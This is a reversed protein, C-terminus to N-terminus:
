FSTYVALYHGLSGAIVFLHWIAHNYPLKEWLYFIVGTTYFAGGGLLWYLSDLGMGATLPEIILLAMWGMILYYLVSLLPRTGFYFTKYIIGLLVMIWLVAIFLYGKSNQMFMLIFPTYTGAILFYISIHDIVQWTFKLKPEEVVHYATSAAYVMGISFSFIILGFLGSTNLHMTGKSILAPVLVLFLLLGFGHTVVNATEEGFEPLRQREPM